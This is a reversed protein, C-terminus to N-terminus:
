LLTEDHKQHNMEEYRRSQRYGYTIGRVLEENELGAGIASVITTISATAWAVRIYNIITPLGDSYDKIMSQFYDVPILITCAVLFLIFMFIYYTIVDIILTSTTALNYLRRINPKNRKSPYEWLHHAAIIWAVLGFIAACMIGILRYISFLQGLNWITPFILAFAGTTFAIAIMNKFSLMIKMPNNAFTMGLILRFRGNLRPYVIFRVDINNDNVDHNEETKGNIKAKSSQEEHFDHADDNELETQGNHVHALRSKFSIDPNEQRRIPMIPFQRKFLHTISKEQQKESLSSNYYKPQDTTDNEHLEALLHIITMEIRKQMPIWGFAPISIQAVNYHFSIDAAVIDKHYFIPLDTLCVAYDWKKNNKIHTANYLIDQAAEAAGTLPDIVEEVKWQVENDMKECLQNSLNGIINRTIDAAREPAAIIGINIQEKEPMTEDGRKANALSVPNKDHQRKNLSTM